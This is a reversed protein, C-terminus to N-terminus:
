RADVLRGAPVEVTRTGTGDPGGVVAVDGATQVVWWGRETTWVPREPLPTVGAVPRPGSAPGIVLGTAGTPSAAVYAVDPIPGSARALRVPGAVAWGPPSPVETVGGGRTDILLAGCTTAGCAPVVVAWRGETDTVAAPVAWRRTVLQSSPDWLGLGGRGTDVLVGETTRGVPRSGRPLLDPLGAFAAAPSGTTDAPEAGSPAGADVDWTLPGAVTQLTLVVGTAPPLDGPRAAVVAVGLALAAAAGVAGALATRRRAPRPTAGELLDM